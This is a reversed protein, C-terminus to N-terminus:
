VAVNEAGASPHETLLLTVAVPVSLQVPAENFLVADAVHLTPLVGFIVTVWVQGM